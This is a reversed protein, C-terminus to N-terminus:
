EHGDDTEKPKGMIKLCRLCTVGWDDLTIVFGSHFNVNCLPRRGILFYYKAKHAKM